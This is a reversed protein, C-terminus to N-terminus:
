SVGLGSFSNRPYVREVYAAVAKKVVRKGDTDEQSEYLAWVHDWGEADFPDLDGIVIGTENKRGAFEFTLEYKDTSPVYVSEVGLLLVTGAPKGTFSGSNVSGVAEMLTNEYAQTYASSDMVRYRTFTFTAVTVDVGQPGQDTVGILKGFNPADNPTTTVTSLSRFVREQSFGIRLRRGQPGGTPQGSSVPSPRGYRAECRWPNTGLIPDAEVVVAVRTLTEDGTDISAPTNDEVYERAEEDTGVFDHLNYLYERTPNLGGVLRPSGHREELTPLPDAM